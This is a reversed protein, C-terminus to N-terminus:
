GGSKRRIRYIKDYSKLDLKEFQNEMDQHIFDIAM